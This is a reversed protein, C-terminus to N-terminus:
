REPGGHWTEIVFSILHGSDVALYTAAGVALIALAAQLVLRRRSPAPSGDLIAGSLWSAAIGALAITRVARAVLPNGTYAVIVLVAAIPVLFLAEIPPRVLRRPVARWSGAARRLAVLAALAIAALVSATIWRLTRRTRARDLERQLTVVLALNAAPARTARDGAAGPSATTLSQRLQALEHEAADLDDTRTLMRVLEAHAHIRDLETTAAARAAGLWRRAATADGDREWGAAISLMLSSARPYGPHEGALQELARLTSRPDGSTHLLRAVLEEHAAAVATWEGAAGTVGGLRSLAIRARRALQDDVAIGRELQLAGVALVQELDTTARAFDSKRTALLAAESWADDSWRTVPRAAGVQELADIDGAALAARFAAEGEASPATSPVTPPVTSSGGSSDARTDGALAVVVLAAAVAARIV